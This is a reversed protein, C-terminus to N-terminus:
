AQPLRDYLSIIVLYIEEASINELGKVTNMIEKISKNLEEKNDM